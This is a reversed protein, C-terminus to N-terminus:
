LLTLRIKELAMHTEKLGQPLSWLIHNYDGEDRTQEMEPFNPMPAAKRRTQFPLVEVEQIENSIPHM